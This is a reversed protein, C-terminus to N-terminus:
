LCTAIALPRVWASPKMLEPLQLYFSLPAVVFQKLRGIDQGDRDGGVYYYRKHRHQKGV